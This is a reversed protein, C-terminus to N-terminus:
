VQMDRLFLPRQNDEHTEKLSFSPSFSSELQAKVIGLGDKWWYIINFQPRVDNKKDFDGKTQLSSVHNLEIEGEFAVCTSM